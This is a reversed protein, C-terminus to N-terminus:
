PGIQYFETGFARLLCATVLNYPKQPTEQIRGLAWPNSKFYDEIMYGATTSFTIKRGQAKEYKKSNDSANQCNGSKGQGNEKAM